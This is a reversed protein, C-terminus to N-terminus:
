QESGKTESRPKWGADRAPQEVIRRYIARTEATERQLRAALTGLDAAGETTAILRRQGEPAAAEDFAAEDGDLTLRLLSQVDSLLLRTARLREIDSREALGFDAARRLMEAPHPALIDPRTAAHRLALYQAVFDIDFLGGPIHKFDWASKPPAHEAIRDRMDAVDRVLAAPDRARCLTSKIIDTLRDVLAPPGHIVRARTLAMHEWTWASQAHYSEFGELSNALPGARGSPRLRMDVEYLAGENTLATLGTVIKSSLRTYYQIPPLPQRGDSSELGPPIDYVFILDLDSTASMERSGLKGLGLVALRQGRFTGHMEAFQREIRDCLAAITAQAVDSYAVGAQAPRVIQKLQQVGVQFRRDNTWRRATDLIEQEDGAAALHNALEGAMAAASPLRTYFDPSLVSDLMMTRRALHAALRPASGMIAAVLELLAPNAKFLSFLQVGAPLNGLFLDFNLLAQDPSATEGLSKLLAPMLETLLERARASRTARYRGHHWRRVIGSAASAERFGLGRLTELTGPDDDTGTFVLNGGPGALSPAEEFLRAYHGEVCRLRQLLEAQFTAPDRYGLFTAIAAMGKADAPLSHTQRDDVMQLRHEVRRLFGYAEALEEAATESVHGAAALARLTECTGRLRLAPNRGGFILQQTQAFFEIERIGGRGLKVNHGLVKVTGGGRHADIQRKISHIDHIAAFDLHKRWIYPRLTGLFDGGVARDGAIPHAKIMAAREWNQGVSEYYLEAAQVSMALPTSGPDPRLRLDTRFIYGDVSTESMLQVLLRAARVMDRSMQENGALAPAERDYLLILDVDSSYNLEGAGLKGMGIVSLAAVAPERRAMAALLADISAAAFQSLEGTIRELPWFGAIDAVAVALAVRRKMRRLKAAVQEPTADDTLAALEAKLDGIAADPGRRWLDTMFHPDQLSTETLYPSNGFLADLLAVGAPEEPWAALENWRTWAVSQRQSDHPPPLRATSLWSM